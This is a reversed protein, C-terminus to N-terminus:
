VPTLLPSTGTENNLDQRSYMRGLAHARSQVSIHMKGSNSICPAFDPDTELQYIRTSPVKTDPPLPHLPAQVRSSTEAEEVVEAGVEAAAVVAAVADGVVSPM